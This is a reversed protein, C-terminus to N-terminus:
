VQHGFKSVIDFVFPNAAQDAAATRSAYFSLEDCITVGEIAGGVLHQVAQPGHAVVVAAATGDATVHLMPLSQETHNSM